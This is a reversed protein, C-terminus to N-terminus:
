DHTRCRSGQRSTPPWGTGLSPHTVTRLFTLGAIAKQDLAIVRNRAKEAASVLAYLDRTWARVGPIADKTAIITGVVSHLTKTDVRGAHKLLYDIQSLIKTKKDDPLKLKYEEADVILGLFRKRIGWCEGCFGGGAREMTSAIPPSELMETIQGAPVSQQVAGAVAAAGGIPKLLVSITQLITPPAVASAVSAFTLKDSM